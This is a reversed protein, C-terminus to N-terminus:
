EVANEKLLLDKAEEKTLIEVRVLEIIELVSATDIKKM